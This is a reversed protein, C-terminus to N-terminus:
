KKIESFHNERDVPNIVLRYKDVLGAGMETAALKAGGAV